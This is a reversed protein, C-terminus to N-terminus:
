LIATEKNVYGVNKTFDNESYEYYQSPNDLESVYFNYHKESDFNIHEEGWPIPVNIVYDYFKSKIQSFKEKKEWPKMDEDSYIKIYQEWIVKAENNLQIYVSETKRNDILEFDVLKFNLDRM